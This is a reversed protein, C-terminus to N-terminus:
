RGRVRTQWQFWSNLWAQSFESMYLTKCHKM